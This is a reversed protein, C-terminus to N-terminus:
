KRYKVTYTSFFLSNDSCQVRRSQYAIHQCQCTDWFHWKHLHVQSNDINHRNLWHCFKNWYFFVSFSSHCVLMYKNKTTKNKKKWVAVIKVSIARYRSPLAEPCMICCKSLFVKPLWILKSVCIWHLSKWVHSLNLIGTDTVQSLPRKRRWCLYVPLHYTM